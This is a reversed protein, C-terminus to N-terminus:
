PLLSELVFTERATWIPVSDSDLIRRNQAIARQLPVWVPNFKLDAEYKDLKQKAFDAVFEAFYYQSTMRFFDSASGEDDHHQEIVQGHARIQRGVRVGCEEGVERLLADVHGEDQKVGGGPFKYDGSVESHLLLFNKGKRIIARVATRDNVNADEPISDIDSFVALTKM